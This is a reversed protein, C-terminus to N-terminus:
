YIITSNYALIFKSKSILDYSDINSDASYCLTNNSFRHKNEEYWQEMGFWTKKINRNEGPHARFIFLHNTNENIIPVLHELWEFMSNFLSSAMVQSTDWSVNGFVSVVNQNNLTIKQKGIRKKNIYDEVKQSEEGNLNRKTYEFFHQSSPEYNFELSYQNDISWGSEFTAVNIENLKCWQYMISEPLTLGNFVLVGSFSNLDLKEIFDILKISSTISKYLYDRHKSTVISTRLIWSISTLSCKGLEIGKYKYNILDDFSLHNLMIKKNIDKFEIVNLDKYLLKNVKTCSSCPLKNSSKFPSGGLHCIDLGKVCQLLEVDINIAKAEEIFNRIGVNLYHPKDITM